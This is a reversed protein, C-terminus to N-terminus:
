AGEREYILIKDREASETAFPLLRGDEVLDVKKGIARSLECMIRSITMLSIRNTYDYEVLLDVDSDPGEEGRSCSGFLWAKIIPQNALSQRLKPLIMQTAPSVMNIFTKISNQACIYSFSNLIGFLIQFFNVRLEFVSFNAVVSNCLGIAIMVSLGQCDESIVSGLCLHLGLSVM